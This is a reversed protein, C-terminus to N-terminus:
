PLVGDDRLQLRISPIPNESREVLHARWGRARAAEVNELVDDFFIIQGPAFGTARELHAYIEADPKRARVLHSAFQHQLKGLAQGHPDAPDILVRWHEANTNSLCATAVGAAHLDDILDAAGPFPGLTYGRWMRTVDECPIDLVTAIHKCFDVVDTQGTEVLAVGEHLRARIAADIREPPVSVGALEFAHSWGDCIRILVRGLDFVVLSPHLPFSSPHIPDAPTV